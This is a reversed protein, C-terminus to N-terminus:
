GGKKKSTPVLITITTGKGVISEIELNGNVQAARERMSKMGLSKSYKLAQELSFGRGQDSVVMRVADPNCEIQIQASNTRAHKRVNNLAEQGIRIFAEEVKPILHGDEKMQITVNLGIKEAYEKLLDTIGKDINDPRLEWILSRMETLAEQALQGINNIGEIVNQDEHKLMERLGRATLSLSFLKQNVSDHLDRALRNREETLLLQQREVYLRAEEMALSIHEALVKLVDFEYDTFPEFQRSIFLVGKQEHLKLPIAISSQGGNNNLEPFIFDKQDSVCIKQESYAQVIIDSSDKSDRLSCTENMLGPTGDRYLAQLTLRDRRKIIIGAASWGFNEGIQGIITELLIDPDNINWIYRTLEDIKAYYEFQKKEREYLFTREVATGIQYAVSELLTLEEDNFYKKGPSGVNLIGFRKGRITLPVTAHHTLNHTDGWSYEVAEQLRKCKIINVAKKLSGKWYLELCDCTGCRMPKKDERALAPPLNYDAMKQHFPREKALFIWGTSIGTVELLKELTSQLMQELDNSENLTEAITKLILLEKHHNEISNSM